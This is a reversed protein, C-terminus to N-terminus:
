SGSKKKIFIQRPCFFFPVWNRKFVFNNKSGFNNKYWFNKQRFFIKKLMKKLLIKLNVFQNRGSYKEIKNIREVLIVAPDWNGENLKWTGINPKHAFMKKVWFIKWAFSKWAWFKEEKLINKWVFYTLRLEKRGVNTIWRFFIKGLIKVM